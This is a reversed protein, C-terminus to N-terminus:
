NHRSLDARLPRVRRRFWTGDRVDERRIATVSLHQDAFLVPQAERRQHDFRYIYVHLKYIHWPSVSHRDQEAPGKRRNDIVVIMLVPHVRCGQCTIPHRSLLPSTM